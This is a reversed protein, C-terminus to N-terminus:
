LLSKLTRHVALLDFCDIGFSILGSYEGSPSISFRWYKIVQHLSGVWQFLGQHQSLSCSSFPVVSSSIAPHCWQSLPRSNSCARPTPSPCSPRALQLGYPPLSDSLVSHSFLLFSWFILCLLSLVIFWGLCQILILVSIILYNILFLFFGLNYSNIPSVAM